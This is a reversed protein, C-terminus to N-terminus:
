VYRACPPILNHPEKLLAQEYYKRIKDESLTIKTKSQEILINRELETLKNELEHLRKNTTASIIGQEIASMLNNLATETQRKESLLTKLIPSEKNQMEQIQM